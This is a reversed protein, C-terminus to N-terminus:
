NGRCAISELEQVQFRIRMKDFNWTIDGLTKLWTTGLVVECGSVPLICFNNTFKFGQLLLTTSVVGKTRMIAGSTIKVTLARINDM